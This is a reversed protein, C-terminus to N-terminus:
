DMLRTGGRLNRVALDHRRGVLRQRRRAVPIRDVLVGGITREALDNRQRTMINRGGDDQNNCWSFGTDGEGDFDCRRHEVMRM